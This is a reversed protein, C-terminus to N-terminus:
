LKFLRSQLEAVTEICRGLVRVTSADIISRLPKQRLVQSYSKLIMILVLLHTDMQAISDFFAESMWETSMV